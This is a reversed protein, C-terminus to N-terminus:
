AQWPALDELDVGLARALTAVAEFSGPKQGAEIQSLDRSSCPETRGTSLGATRAVM